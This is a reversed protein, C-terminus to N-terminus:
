ALSAIEQAHEFGGSQSPLFNVLRLIENFFQSFDSIFHSKLLRLFQGSVLTNVVSHDM